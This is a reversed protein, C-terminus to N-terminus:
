EAGHNQLHTQKTIIMIEGIIKTRQWIGDDEVTIM